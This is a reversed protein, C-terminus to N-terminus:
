LTTRTKGDHMPELRATNQRKKLENYRSKESRLSAPIGYGLM